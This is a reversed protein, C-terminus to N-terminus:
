SLSLFGRFRKHDVVFEPFVADANTCNLHRALVEAFVDRFDTTLALDRGEYLQEPSLGPWDGYVKGGKVPGGMAFMVNAHGHDTGANGNEHVTRGFESMTLVVVDEMRDGLDRCLAGLGNGFERLRNGLQGQLSGENVHHDWGDSDVFAVELGVDAKILQAVQKLNEGFRGRPYRVGPRPQYQAPNATKLFEIAEFMERATGSLLSNTEQDYLTQVYSSYRAAELDFSQISAMAIAPAKGTLTRPLEGGMSVARFPTGNRPSQQLYRNLWGDRVEKGLVASEMFDQADFHSRTSHPSGVAHIISLQKEAYLDHLPKLSPHLGFFGDLELASERGRSPAPIAITPRKAYYEKEGFPVVVNLGDAGGRQFVAILIKRKGGKPSAALTTRFLFSPVMGIGLLALGGNKLFIRRSLM